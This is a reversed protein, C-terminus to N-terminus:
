NVILQLRQMGCDIDPQCLYRATQLIHFAIEFREEKDPALGLIVPLTLSCPVGPAWTPEGSARDRSEQVNMETMGPDRTVTYGMNMGYLPNQGKKQDTQFSPCATGLPQLCHARLQVPPSSYTAQFSQLGYIWPVDQVECGKWAKGEQRM